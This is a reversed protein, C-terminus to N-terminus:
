RRNVVRDVGRAINDTMHEVITTTALVFPDVMPWMASYVLTMPALVLLAIGIQLVSTPESDSVASPNIAVFILWGAIVATGAALSIWAVRRLFKAFGRLGILSKALRSALHSRADSLEVRGLDEPPMSEIAESLLKIRRIALPERRM